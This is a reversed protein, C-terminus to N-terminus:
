FTLNIDGGGKKFPSPCKKRRHQPVFGPDGIELQGASSGWLSSSLVICSAFQALSVQKKKIKGQANFAPSECQGM